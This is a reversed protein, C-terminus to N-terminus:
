FAAVGGGPRPLVGLPVRLPRVGLGPRWMWAPIGVLLLPAAVLTYVLHQVMHASYLYGEALDHVPWDSAVLLLAMGTSFLASRRGREELDAPPATRAHTRVAVVYAVWVGGLLLWVDLHPHWDPM